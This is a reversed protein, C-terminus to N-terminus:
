STLHFLHRQKFWRESPNAKSELLCGLRSWVSNEPKVSGDQYGSGCTVKSQTGLLLAPPVTEEHM